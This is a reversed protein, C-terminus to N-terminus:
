RIAIAEIEVPIDFPLQKVAVCTRAPPDKPFYTAYVENMAAFDAMDRLYVNVKVVKDLGSGTTNLIKRVNDLVMATAKKVDKMEVNSGDVPGTGSVFIFGGAEAAHSYPGVAVQGEAFYVKKEM